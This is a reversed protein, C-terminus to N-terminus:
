MQSAIQELLQQQVEPPQQNFVALEKESLGALPDPSAPKQTTPPTPTQAQAMKAEIEDILSEKDPLYGDPIRKLFQIFDIYKGNLLNSLTQIATIESYKTTEGVNCAVNLWISKLQSFDFETLVRGDANKMVLPRVGYYTGMMDVLIEGISEMWESMNAAPNALPVTGAERVAVLASTNKPNDIQGLLADSIGATEKFYGVILDLAQIIQTSMVAPQIQDVITNIPREGMNDIAISRGVRNDVGDPLMNADYVIKPFASMLLHYMIMAVLQNIFIQTNILSSAVSVGHYSNKQKEWNFWAIPYKTLGTDVEEFIVANMTSKSVTITGTEPDRKYCYIFLAKGFEEIDENEITANDGAQYQYESDAVIAEAEFEDMGHDIAEKRLSAITDRGTILIYPQREKDNSNPNGFMVNAGDALEMIIEGQIEGSEAGYPKVTTDFYFHACADGTIAGDFCAERLRYEMKFKELLFEIHSNVMETLQENTMGEASAASQLYPSLHIKLNSTTLSAVFFTIFRRVYNLVPHPLEDDESEELGRWQQGRFFDLNIDIDDYYNPELRNNYNIGAQYYQWAKTVDAL